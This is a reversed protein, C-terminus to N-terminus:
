CEDPPVKDPLIKDAPIISTDKVTSVTVPAHGPQSIVAVSEERKVRDPLPRQKLYLFTSMIAAFLFVLWILHFSKASGFAFDHPDVVSAGFAAYVASSGGGIAGYLLGYIWDDWAFTSWFKWM